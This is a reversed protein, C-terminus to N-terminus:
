LMLWVEIMFLPQIHALPFLFSINAQKGFSSDLQQVLPYRFTYHIIKCFCDKTVTNRVSFKNCHRNDINQPQIKVAAGTMNSKGVGVTIM